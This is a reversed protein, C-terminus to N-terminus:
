IDTRLNSFMENEATGISRIKEILANTLNNMREFAAEIILASDASFQSIGADLKPQSVTNETKKAPTTQIGTVTIGDFM